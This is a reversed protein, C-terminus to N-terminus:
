IRCPYSQFPLSAARERSQRFHPRNNLLISHKFDNCGHIFNQIVKNPANGGHGADDAHSQIQSDAGSEQLQPLHRSGRGPPKYREPQWQPYRFCQRHPRHWRWRRDRHQTRSTSRPRIQPMLSVKLPKMVTGFRTATNRSVGSTRFSTRSCKAFSLFYSFSPRTAFYHLM